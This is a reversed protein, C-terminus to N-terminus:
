KKKFLLYIPLICKIFFSFIIIIITIIRNVSLHLHNLTVTLYIIINVLIFMLLGNVSITVLSLSLFTCLLPNSGETTVFYYVILGILLPQYLYSIFGYNITNFGFTFAILAFGVALLYAKKSRYFEIVFTAFVQVILNLLLQNSFYISFSIPNFNSILKNSFKLIFDLLSYFGLHTEVAFGEIAQGTSIEINLLRNSYFNNNILSLYNTGNELVGYMRPYGNTYNTLVMGVGIAICVILVINFSNLKIEKCKYKSLFIWILYFYSAIFIFTFIGYSFVKFSNFLLLNLIVAIFATILYVIFGILSFFKLEIKLLDSFFLGISYCSVLFVILILSNILVNM